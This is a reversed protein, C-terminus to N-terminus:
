SVIDRRGLWLLGLMMLLLAVGLLGTVPALFSEGLLVKPVHTFPSINLLLTSLQKFEGGMDLFFSLALLSWSGGAAFRPLFGFLAVTCGAFVWLAPLYVLAAGTIRVVEERVNGTSIGLSLGSAAGFVGFILASGLVVWFIHSMAWRMRGVSTALLMDVRGSEEESRLQLISSIVYLCLAEGLLMFGMTFLTDGPHMTAGPRSFAQALLPSKLLQESAVDAVMGFVAGIIAYGVFWSLIQTRQLRWALALPSGIGRSSGLANRSSEHADARFHFFGAPFLRSTFLGTNLDRRATLIYAAVVLPLAAFLFVTLVEAHDGAFPRTQRVWGYPSYWALSSQPNLNAIMSIVFFGGVAIGGAARAGRASSAVRDAVAAIGAFFFGAGAVGLGLIISGLAPQAFQMVEVAALLGFLIDAFFVVILVATLQAFRGTVASGILEARGTEEENRSHRIVTLVNALGLLLIGAVSWRWVVLGGLSVSQVEGLMAMVTPNSAFAKVFIARSAEDPYLAAFSSATGPALLTGLIVWLPLIIRDRRLILRVLTLTGTWNNM